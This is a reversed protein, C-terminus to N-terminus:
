RGHGHGHRHHDARSAWAVLGAADRTMRARAGIAVGPGVAIVCVALTPLGVRLLTLRRTAPAYWPARPRTRASM